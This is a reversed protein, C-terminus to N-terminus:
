HLTHWRGDHEVKTPRLLGEPVHPPDEDALLQARLADELAEEREWRAMVAKARRRRRVYAWGLGGVILVWLATGGTIIPIVSYRHELDSRWQFELKRLDSGYADRVARDFPQGSRVRSIMAHFRARDSDRLMFRVFDASQAYAIQVQFPDAPFRKDLDALPHLTGSLTASWLTKMRQAILEGSEHMALGENFWLPVSQGGLADELAVHALEHRFVEDLNVAEAGRPAMLTLLVLRLQTYAVGSAYAPPPAGVPALQAMEDFTPAVRVEVHSLIPQGFSDMLAAKIADADRLLPEVRPAAAPPYSVTLWGHDVRQFGAPVPPITVGAPLVVPVDHPLTLSGSAGSAAAEGPAPGISPEALALSPLVLAFLTILLSRLIRVAIFSRHGSSRTPNASRM